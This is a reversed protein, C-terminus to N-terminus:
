RTLKLIIISKQSKCWSQVEHVPPITSPFDVM